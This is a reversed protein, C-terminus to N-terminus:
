LTLQRMLWVWFLFVAIWLFIGLAYTTMLDAQEAYASTSTATSTGGGGGGAAHEITLFPDDTTGANTAFYIENYDYTTPATNTTDATATLAFQTKGSASASAPITEGSRAILSIGTANLDITQPGSASSAVIRDIPDSAQSGAMGRLPFDSAVISNWTAQESQTLVWQNSATGSNDGRLTFTFSASSITDSSPVVSTDFMFFPIFLEYTSGADGVVFYGSSNNHVADATSQGYATAWSADGEVRVLADAEDAFVITTTNGIKGEEIASGDKAIQPVANKLVTRLAEDPDEVYNRLCSFGLKGGPKDVMTETCTGDWVYRPANMVRIRETEVTGDYGFGVPEGDLSAKVFAYVNEGNETSYVQGVEISYGGSVLVDNAVVGYESGKSEEVQVPDVVEQASSAYSFAFVFALVLM